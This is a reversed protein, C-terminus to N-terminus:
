WRVSREFWVHQTQGMPKYAFTLGTVLLESVPFSLEYVKQRLKGTDSDTWDNVNRIFGDIAM